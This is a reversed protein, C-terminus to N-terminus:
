SKTEAIKSGSSESAAKATSAPKDSSKDSNQGESKKEEGSEGKNGGERDSRGNNNGAKYDTIYFGSGKFILGSGASLLKTLHGGCKECTTKPADKISQFIDFQQGCKDCAYEYTPM